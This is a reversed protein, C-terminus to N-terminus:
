CMCVTGRDKGLAIELTHSINRLEEINNTNNNIEFEVLELDIKKSLEPDNEIKEIKKDISILIKEKESKEQSFVSSVFVLNLFILLLSYFKRM